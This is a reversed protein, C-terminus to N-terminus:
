FVSGPLVRSFNVVQLQSISAIVRLARQQESDGTVTGSLYATKGIVRVALDSFGNLALTDNVKQQEAQWEGTTTLLGNIVQKVGYVSSTTTEALARSQPDFVTGHLVIVGPAARYCEAGNLRRDARLAATVRQALTLKTKAEAMSSSIVAFCLIVIAVTSKLTRRSETM